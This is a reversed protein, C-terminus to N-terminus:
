TASGLMVPVADPLRIPLHTAVLAIGGAKRHDAILAELTGVAIADLGNAPEDLLWIPAGSAVVRAMAARRRQGTSLMRVPVDAIQDLGLEALAGAVAGRRGDLAAWFDLARALPLEPDLAHAEALLAIDGKRRVTGEAPSLLGGAIRVLSSKGAGNPGTVLAADGPALAFGLGEFLTRGARAGTVADFALVASM